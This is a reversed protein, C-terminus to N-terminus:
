VEGKHRTYTAFGTKNSATRISRASNKPWTKKLYNSRKEFKQKQNTKFQRDKKYRKGSYIKTKPFNPKPIKTQKRKRLGKTSSGTKRKAKKHSTKLRSFFSKRKAM